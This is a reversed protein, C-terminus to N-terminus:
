LTWGERYKRRVYQGAEPCDPVRLKEADWEIKRGLRYAVNGLLVTETLAGSYDFNCTTASGTKCANIWEQHHGVSKPITPEPPEFNAFKDEPWLLRKNYDALIFGKSGVFLVGSTWEPMGNQRLIKPPNGHRWVLEVAPRDGRVPFQYSVTMTTPTSEPLAPPGSAEISIPHRLDLAWFPLDMFHCGFNGLRGGGFDWWYHWGHPVYVPSYPRPPAPGLFLDWDLHAPVPPTDTPRQFGGKGASIWSYCQHVPGVAGSRVLEVVRRYNDGAHIQTGMQTAVKKEAAVQAAVRAEYVSHALPKECYCHKGMRMAKVSAPIHIHNPASVVVADIQNEMQDLMKRYDTFKAVDPYKNFTGAARQQDVDCLAVINEHKVGNLNSAGRGGSGVLAINLKENPSGAGAFSGSVAVTVGTSALAAQRVFERRTLHNTM